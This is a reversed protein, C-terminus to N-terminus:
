YDEICKLVDKVDKICYEVMILIVLRNIYLCFWIIVIIMKCLFFEYLISVKKYCKSGFVKWIVIWNVWKKNKLM